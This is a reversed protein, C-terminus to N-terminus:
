RRSRGGSRGRRRFNVGGAEALPPSREGRRARSAAVKKRGGRSGGRAACRVKSPAGGGRSGQETRSAGEPGPHPGRTLIAAPPTSACGSRRCAGERRGGVARGAHAGHPLAQLADALPRGLEVEDGAVLLQEHLAGLFPSRAGPCPTAHGRARLGGRPHALAWPAAGAALFDRPTPPSRM